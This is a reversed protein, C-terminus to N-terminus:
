SGEEPTWQQPVYAKRLNRWRTHTWEESAAAIHRALLEMDGDQQKFNGLGHSYLINEIKAAVERAADMRIQERNERIHKAMNREVTTLKSGM